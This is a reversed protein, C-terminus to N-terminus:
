KETREFKECQSHVGSNSWSPETFSRMFIETTMRESEKELCWNNCKTSTDLLSHDIETYNFMGHVCEQREHGSLPEMLEEEWKRKLIAGFFPTKSSIIHPTRALFMMRGLNNKSLAVSLGVAPVYHLKWASTRGDHLALGQRSGGSTGHKGELLWGGALIPVIELKAPVLKLEVIMEHIQPSLQTLQKNPTWRTFFSQRKTREQTKSIRRKVNVPRFGTHLLYVHHLQNIVLPWIWQEKSYCYIKITLFFPGNLAM